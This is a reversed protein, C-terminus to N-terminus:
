GFNSVYRSTSRPKNTKGIKWEYGNKSNRIEFQFKMNPVTIAESNSTPVAQKVASQSDFQWKRVKSSTRANLTVGYHFM